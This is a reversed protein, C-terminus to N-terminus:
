LVMREQVKKRNTENQFHENYDPCKVALYNEKM